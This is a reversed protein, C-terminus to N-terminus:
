RTWYSEASSWSTVLVTMGRESCAGTTERRVRRERRSATTAKLIWTVTLLHLRTAGPPAIARLTHNRVATVGHVRVVAFAYGACLVCLGCLFRLLLSQNGRPAATAQTRQQVRASCPYVSARECGAPYGDEHRHNGEAKGADDQRVGM